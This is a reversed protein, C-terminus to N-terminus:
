KELVTNIAHGPVSCTPPTDISNLTYTGDAPCKLEEPTVYHAIESMTPVSGPSKLNDLAWQQKAWDIRRLNSICRNTKKAADEVTTAAQASEHSAQGHSVSPGDRPTIPIVKGNKQVSGDCLLVYGHIPCRALIEEPNSENVTKGSRFQYTINEPELHRIDSAPKRSSDAPCVYVMPFGMENEMVQLHKVANKDFGDSGVSCFEKTGGKNASANFPFDGDHDIAWTRLALGIQKLNNVCLSSAAGTSDLERLHIKATEAFESGQRAAVDRFLGLAMERDRPVGNGKAYMEALLLQAETLNQKAAMQLWRAAEAYDQKIDAGKLYEKGLILGAEGVGGEASKRAWKTAEAMNTEVGDGTAYYMALAYQSLVNGKEAKELAERVKPAVKDSASSTQHEPARDPQPTSSTASGTLPTISNVKVGAVWWGKEKKEFRIAGVLKFKQGKSVETGPNTASEALQALENLPKDPSKTTRFSAEDDMIAGAFTIINWKCAELFEIETEYELTYVKVGMVEALEGNTKQFQVLRMRGQSQQKMRDEIAQRGDSASPPGSCGSLAAGLCALFLFVVYHRCPRCTCPECVLTARLFSSLRMVPVLKMLRNFIATLM